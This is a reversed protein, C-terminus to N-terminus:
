NPDDNPEKREALWAEAWARLRRVEDQVARRDLPKEVEEGFFEYRYEVAFPTLRHLTDFEEPVALGHSRALDMLEGLRHIRPYVVGHAVLAAKLLKEVAQQAHFGFTEDAADPNDAFQALVYEDQQAKALLVQAAELNGM